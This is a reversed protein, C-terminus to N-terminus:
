VMTEATIKRTAKPTSRRLRIISRSYAQNSGRILYEQVYHLIPIYKAGEGYTFLALTFTGVAFQSQSAIKFRLMQTFSSYDFDQLAM